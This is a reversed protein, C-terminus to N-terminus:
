PYVAGSASSMACSISEIPPKRRHQRPSYMLHPLRRLARSLGARDDRIDRRRTSSTATRRRVRVPARPPGPRAAALCEISCTGTRTTSSRSRSARRQTAGGPLPPQGGRPASQGHWRSAQCWRMLLDGINVVFQDPPTACTSGAGARADLVQLGGPVDEGSLITFGGYDTHASARLQGPMRRARGAAPYYNLRM